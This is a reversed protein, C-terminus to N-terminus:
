APENPEVAESSHEDDVSTSPAMPDRGGRAPADEGASPEATTNPNQQSRPAPEAHDPDFPPRGDPETSEDRPGPHAPTREM